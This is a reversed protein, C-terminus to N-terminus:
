APVVNIVFIGLIDADKEIIASVLARTWKICQNGSANAAMYEIAILQYDPIEYDYYVGIRSEGAHNLKGMFAHAVDFVMSLREPLRPIDLVEPTLVFERLNETEAKDFKASTKFIAEDLEKVAIAKAPAQMSRM